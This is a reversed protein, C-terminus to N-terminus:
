GDFDCLLASFNFNELHALMVVNDLEKVQKLVALIVIDHHLVHCSVVHKVEELPLVKSQGLLM